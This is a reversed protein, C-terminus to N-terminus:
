FVRERAVNPKFEKEPITLLIVAVIIFVGGLLQYAGFSEKLWAISLIATVLPEISSLLGTEIATLYKLSGIYLLFSITGSLLIIILMSFTSITLTQAVHHFSFQRKIVM